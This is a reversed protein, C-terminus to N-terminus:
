LLFANFIFGHGLPEITVNKQLLDIRSLGAIPMGVAIVPVGIFYFRLTNAIALLFIGIGWVFSGFLYNNLTLKKRVFSFLPNVTIM